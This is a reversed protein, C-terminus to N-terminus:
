YCRFRGREDLIKVEIFSTDYEPHNKRKKFCIDNYIYIYIYIYIYVSLLYIYIYKSLIM